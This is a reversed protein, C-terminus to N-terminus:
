LRNMNFIILVKSFYLFKPQFHLRTAHIQQGDDQYDNASGHQASKRPQYQRPSPAAISATATYASDGSCRLWADRTCRDRRFRSYYPGLRM